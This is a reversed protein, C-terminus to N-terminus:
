WNGTLELALNVTKRTAHFKSKVPVNNSHSDNSNDCAGDKEDEKEKIEKLKTKADSTILQNYITYYRM